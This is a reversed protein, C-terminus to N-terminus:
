KLRVWITNNQDFIVDKSLTPVNTFDFLIQTDLTGSGLILTGTYTFIKYLGKKNFISNMLELTIANTLNLDGTVQITGGPVIPNRNLRRLNSLPM